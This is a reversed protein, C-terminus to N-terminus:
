LHRVFFSPNGLLNNARNRLQVLSTIPNALLVVLDGVNGTSTAIATFSVEPWNELAKLSIELVSLIPQCRRGNCALYRRGKM